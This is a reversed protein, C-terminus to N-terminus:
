EQVLIGADPRHDEGKVVDKYIHYIIMYVFATTFLLGVGCTLFGVMQSLVGALIILVFSVFWVKNGLKFAVKVVQLPSWEPNFAFIVGIFSIPVSVYIVPLMCLALAMLAILVSILSLVFTKQLYQWKLFLFLMGPRVEDGRELAEFSRYLGAQMAMVLGQVLFMGFIFLLVFPLAAVWSMEGFYESIDAGGSGSVAMGFFPIYIILLVPVVLAATFLVYLFGQLWAKRYLEFARSFVDAIDPMRAESIANFLQDYTM